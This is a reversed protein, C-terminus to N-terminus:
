SRERFLEDRSRRPLASGPQDRRRKRALHPLVFLYIGTVWMGLVAFATPLFLWLKVRSHFWSGDHLSEILDSRRYASQLVAGTEIDIQLEWRSTSTIKVIGKAPRVDIRDVDSWEAIGAAPVGRAAALLRDFSVTPTRAATSREQPQVWDLQKKLQLLIGTSIVVLFPLAVGLALWRHLKRNWLRPNFPRPM